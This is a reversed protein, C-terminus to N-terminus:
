ARHLALFASVVRRARRRQARESSRALPVRYHTRVMDLGLAMGLLLEASERPDPCNLLGQKSARKLGSSLLEHTRAPGNAYVTQFDASRPSLASLAETMRRHEISCVFSVLEGVFAELQGALAELTTAPQGLPQILRATQGAVVDALLAQRSSFHRYVTVRSVEARQAVAAMTVGPPGEEMLLSHAAQRIAELKHADVPRGARADM